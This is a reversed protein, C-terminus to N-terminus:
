VLSWDTVARTKIGGPTGGEASYLEGFDIGSDEIGSMEKPFRELMTLGKFIENKGKRLVLKYRDRM